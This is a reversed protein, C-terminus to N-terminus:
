DIILEQIRKLLLDVNFPKPIYADAGCADAIRRINEEASLLVIPIKALPYSAKFERCIDAGTKDSGKLSIDLLILQPGILHIHDAAEPTNSIIVEYGDEQFIIRLIELIDEDDDIVLIRKPM